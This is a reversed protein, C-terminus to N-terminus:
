SAKRQAISEKVLALVDEAMGWSAQPQPQRNLLGVKMEATHGQQYCVQFGAPGIGYAHIVDVRRPKLGASINSGSPKYPQRELPVTITERELRAGGKRAPRLGLNV